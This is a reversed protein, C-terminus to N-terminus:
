WQTRRAGTADCELMFNLGRWWYQWILKYIDINLKPLRIKAHLVEEYTLQMSEDRLKVRSSAACAQAFM